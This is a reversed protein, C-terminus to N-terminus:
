RRALESCVTVIGSHVEGVEAIGKGGRETDRDDESIMREQTLAHTPIGAVRDLRHEVLATNGPDLADHGLVLANEGHLRQAIGDHASREEGRGCDRQDDADDRQARLVVLEGHRPMCQTRDAGDVLVEPQHLDHHQEDVHQAREYEERLRNAEHRVDPDHNGHGRRGHARCEDGRHQDLGPTIM